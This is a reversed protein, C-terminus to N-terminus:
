SSEKNHVVKSVHELMFGDLEDVPPLWGFSHIYKYVTIVEGTIFTCEEYHCLRGYAQPRSMELRKIEEFIGGTGIVTLDLFKPKTGRQFQLKALFKM